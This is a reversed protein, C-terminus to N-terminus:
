RLPNDARVMTLKANQCPHSEEPCKRVARSNQQLVTRIQDLTIHLHPCISIYGEQTICRRTSDPQSQQYQSFYMSAHQTNCVSCFLDKYLDLVRRHYDFATQAQRCSVCFYLETSSPSQPQCTPPPPLSSSAPLVGSETGCAYAPPPPSNRQTRDRSFLLEHTNPLSSNCPSNDTASYPPPVDESVDNSM